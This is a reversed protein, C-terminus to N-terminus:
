AVQRVIVSRVEAIHMLLLFPTFIGPINTIERATAALVVFRGLAVVFMALEANRVGRWNGIASRMRVRARFALGDYFLRGYFVIYYVSLLLVAVVVLSMKLDLLGLYIIKM